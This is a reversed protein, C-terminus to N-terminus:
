EAIFANTYLEKVPTTSRIFGNKSYFEQLAALREEDMEGLVKQGPYVYENYLRFTALVAGEKGQWQPVEKAFDNAATEPDDMIARMGKLTARVLKRVLEPRKEITDDRVIIAQAMSLFYEDAPIIKIKKGDALAMATWDPVSAMADAKGSLFLKWVGQPGAAQINADNRTLGQSAMMGLLAYYTTDQYSITTITKGKLDGPGDIGADADVVLQMFSRGGILAVSRVNIGNPRVIIPTDGLSGGVVANGAGVQTAVDVGGRAMQFTVDLGEEKYYGRAKAVQWPGFAPLSAPAPLLYTIKEDASAPAAGAGLAVSAVVALAAAKLTMSRM